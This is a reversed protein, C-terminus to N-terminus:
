PWVAFGLQIVARVRDPSVAAAEVGPAFTIVPDLGRVLAELGVGLRVGLHATAFLHVRLQAGVIGDTYRERQVDLPGVVEPDLPITTISLQQVAVGGVVLAELGLRRRLYLYGVSATVPWHLLRAAVALDPTDAVLTTSVPQTPSVTLGASLGSRLRIGAGFALGSLWRRQPSFTRGEYGADLWWSVPRARQVLSPDGVERRAPAATAPTTNPLPSVTPPPPPPAISRPEGGVALATFLALACTLPGQMWAIMGRQTTHDMRHTVEHFKSDPRHGVTSLGDRM